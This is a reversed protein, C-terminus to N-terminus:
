YELCNHSLGNFVFIFAVKFINGTEGMRLLELVGFTKSKVAFLFCDCTECAKRIGNWTQKMFGPFFQSFGVKEDHKEVMKKRPFCGPRDAKMPTDWAMWMMDLRNHIDWLRDWILYPTFWRTMHIFRQDFFQITWQIPKLSFRCSVMTKVMLYLAKRYIKGDDLEIFPQYLEHCSRM